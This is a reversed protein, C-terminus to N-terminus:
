GMVQQYLVMEQRQMALRNRIKKAARAECQCDLSKQELFCPQLAVM